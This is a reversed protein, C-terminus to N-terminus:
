IQPSPITVEGSTHSPAFRFLLVHVELPNEPPDNDQEDSQKPNTVDEHVVVLVVPM